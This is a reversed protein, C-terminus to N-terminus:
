AAVVRMDGTGTTHLGYLDGRLRVRVKTGARPDRVGRLATHRVAPFAIGDYARQDDAVQDPVVVTGNGYHAMAHQKYTYRTKTQM